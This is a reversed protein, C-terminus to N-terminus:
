SRLHSRHEIVATGVSRVNSRLHRRMGVLDFRDARLEDNCLRAAPRRWWSVPSELILIFAVDRRRDTNTHRHPWWLLVSKGPEDLGWRHSSLVLVHAAKGSQRKAAKGSQRKAAKGSQRKAAKGSQRRITAAGEFM